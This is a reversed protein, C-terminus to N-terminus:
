AALRIGTRKNAGQNARRAQEIWEAKLAVVEELILSVRQRRGKGRRVLTLGETGCKGQRITSEDLDLLVAACCLGILTQRRILSM